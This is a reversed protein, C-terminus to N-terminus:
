INNDLYTKVKNWENSDKEIVGIEEYGGEYPIYCLMMGTIDKDDTMVQLKFCKENYEEGDIKKAVETRPDDKNLTIDVEIIDEYKDDIGIINM